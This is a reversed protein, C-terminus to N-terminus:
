GIDKESYELDEPMVTFSVENGNKNNITIDLARRNEIASVILLFRDIYSEDDYDDGDLCRDFVCYDDETFLPEIDDPLDPAVGFLKMRKDLSIAKLWRMQLTTLPIEPIHRIPSSGDPLILRWSQSRISREIQMVSEAFAYKESIARIREMSVPAKEAERLIHSFANYYAGYLESFIM